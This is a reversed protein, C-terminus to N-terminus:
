KDQIESGMLYLDGQRIVLLKNEEDFWGGAGKIFYVRDGIAAEMEIDPRGKGKKLVTAYNLAEGGSIKFGAGLVRDEATEVKVLYRDGLPRYEYQKTM